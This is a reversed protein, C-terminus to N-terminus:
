ALDAVSTVADHKGKWKLTPPPPPPDTEKSKECICLL